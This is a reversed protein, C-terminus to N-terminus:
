TKDANVSLKEINFSKKLIGAADKEECNKRIVNLVYIWSKWPLNWSIKVNRNRASSRISGASVESSCNFSNTPSIRFSRFFTRNHAKKSSSVITEPGIKLEFRYPIVAFSNFIFIFRERPLFIRTKFYFNPFVNNLAVFLIFLKGPTVLGTEARIVGALRDLFFFFNVIAILTERVNLQIKTAMISTEAVRAGRRSSNKNRAGDTYM